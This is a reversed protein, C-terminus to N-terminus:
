GHYQRVLRNLEHRAASPALRGPGRENARRMLSQLQRRFNRLESSLKRRPQLTAGFALAIEAQVRKVILLPALRCLLGVARQSPVYWVYTRRWRSTAPRHDCLTGIGGSMARAVELLRRDTSAVAVRFTLDPRGKGKGTADYICISGEGDILAAMWADRPSAGLLREALMKNLEPLDTM